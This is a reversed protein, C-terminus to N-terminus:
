GSGIMMEIDIINQGATTAAALLRLRRTGHQRRLQLAKDEGDEAHLLGAKEDAADLVDVGGHQVGVAGGDAVVVDRPPDQEVALQVLEAVDEVHVKPVPLEELDQQGGHSFVLQESSCSVLMMVM